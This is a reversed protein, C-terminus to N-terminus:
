LNEPEKEIVVVPQPFLADKRDRKKAESHSTRQVSPELLKVHLPSFFLSVYNSFLLARPWHNELLKIDYSM